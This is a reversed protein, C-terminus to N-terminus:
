DWGRNCHYWYPEYILHGCFWPCPLSEIFIQQIKYVVM